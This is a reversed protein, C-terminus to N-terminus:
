QQVNSIAGPEDARGEIQAQIRLALLHDVAELLNAPEFPKSMLHVLPIGDYRGSKELAEFGTSCILISITATKSNARLAHIMELENEAYGKIYGLIILDPMVSEVEALHELAQFHTSVEYGRTSLVVEFLRLVHPTHNFVMIRVSM